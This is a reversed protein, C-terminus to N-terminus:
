RHLPYCYFLCDKAQFDQNPFVVWNSVRGEYTLGAKELVRKSQLNEADCCAWLRYVWGLSSFYPLMEALAENIYGQGWFKPSLIYGFSLRGRENIFGVSGLVKGQKNLIIYTFDAGSKWAQIAYEVFPLTDKEVSQHTLWSVYRTAEPVSAYTEFIAVTDTPVIRRIHLRTTSFFEKVSQNEM